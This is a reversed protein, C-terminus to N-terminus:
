EAAPAAIAPEEIPEEGHTITPALMGRWREILRGYIAIRGNAEAVFAEREIELRAIELIIREEM